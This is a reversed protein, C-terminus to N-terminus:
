LFNLTSSGYSEIIGTRLTFCNSPLSKFCYWCACVGQLMVWLPWFSSAARTHKSAFLYCFPQIQLHHFVVCGWLPLVHRWECCCSSMWGCLSLRQPCGRRHSLKLLSCFCLCFPLPGPPPLSISLCSIPVFSWKQLIFFEPPTDWLLMSYLVSSFHVSM